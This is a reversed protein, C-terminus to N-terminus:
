RLPLPAKAAISGAQYVVKGDPLVVVLFQRPPSAITSQEAFKRAIAIDERDVRSGTLNGLSILRRIMISFALAFSAFIISLPILVM